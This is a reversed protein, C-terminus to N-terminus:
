RASSGPLVATAATVLLSATGPGDPSARRRRAPAFAGARREADRDHGDDRDEDGQKGQHRQGVHDEHRGGGAPVGGDGQDEARAHAFEQQVGHQQGHHRHRQAQDQADAAGPEDFAGGQHAPLPPGHQEGGRQGDGGEDVAVGPNGRHRGEAPQPGPDQDGGQGIEREHVDRGGRREAAQVRRDFLGGGGEPRPAQRANKRTTSGCSRMAMVPPPSSTASCRSASYPAKAIIRKSVKVVAIMTCYWDVKLPVAPFM